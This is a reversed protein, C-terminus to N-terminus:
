KPARSTLGGHGRPGAPGRRQLTVPRSPPRIPPHPTTRPTPARTQTRRTAVSPPTTVMTRSLKAHGCLDTFIHHFVLTIIFAMNDGQRFKLLLNTKQFMGFRLLTSCFKRKFLYTTVLQVNAANLYVLQTCESLGTRGM